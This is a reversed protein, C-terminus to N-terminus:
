GSRLTATGSSSSAVSAAHAHQSIDDLDIPAERPRRPDVGIQLARRRQNAIDQLGARRLRECCHRACLNLARLAGVGPRTRVAASFRAGGQQDAVQDAPAGLGTRNRPIDCPRLYRREKSFRERLPVARPRDHGDSATPRAQAIDDRFSAAIREAPWFSHGRARRLGVVRQDLRQQVSRLVPTAADQQQQVFESLQQFM